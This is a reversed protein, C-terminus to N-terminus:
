ALAGYRRLLDAGQALTETHGDPYECTLALNAVYEPGRTKLARDVAQIADEESEYAAVLNRSALSWLEWVKMEDNRIHPERYARLTQLALPLEMQRAGSLTTAALPSPERGRYATAEM